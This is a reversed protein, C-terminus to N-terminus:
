PRPGKHLKYKGASNGAKQMLLTKRATEPTQAPPLQNLLHQAHRAFDARSRVGTATLEDMESASKELMLRVTPTGYPELAAIHVDPNAGLALLLRTRWDESNALDGEVALYLPSVKGQPFVNAKPNAAVIQKILAADEGQLVTLLPTLGDPGAANIDAGHSILLAVFEHVHGATMLNSQSIVHCLVTQGEIVANVDAGGALASRMAELDGAVVAWRLAETLTRYPNQQAM